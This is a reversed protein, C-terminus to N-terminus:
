SRQWALAAVHRGAELVFGQVPPFSWQGAPVVTFLGGVSLTEIRVDSFEFIVGVRPYVCKYAAEKISFSQTRWDGRWSDLLHQEDTRLVIDAVEPEVADIREIDLGLGPVEDNRAVVAACCLWALIHRALVPKLRLDLRTSM